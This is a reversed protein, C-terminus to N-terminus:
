KPAINHLRGIRARLRPISDRLYAKIQQEAKDLETGCAGDDKLARIVLLFNKFQAETKAVTARDDAITTM